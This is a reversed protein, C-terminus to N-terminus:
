IKSLIDEIEKIDKLFIDRVSKSLYVDDVLKSYTEVKVELHIKVTLIEKETLKEM